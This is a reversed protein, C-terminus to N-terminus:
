APSRPSYAPLPESGEDSVSREGVGVGSPPANALFALLREGLTWPLVVVREEGGQETHPAPHSIVIRPQHAPTAPPSIPPPPLPQILPAPPPDIPCFQQGTSIDPATPPALVCPPAHLTDLDAKEDRQTPSAPSPCQPVQVARDSPATDSRSPSGNDARTSYDHDIVYIVQSPRSYVSATRSSGQIYPGDAEAGLLAHDHATCPLNKPYDLEDRYAQETSPIPSIPTVPLSPLIADARSQRRRRLLLLGAVVAILIGLIIPLVIEDSKLRHPSSSANSATASSAPQSSTGVLSTMRASTDTSALSTTSFWTGSLISSRLSPTPELSTNTGSGSGNLSQTNDSPSMPESVPATSTPSLTSSGPFDDKTNTASWSTTAVSPSSASSNSSSQSLSSFSPASTPQSRLSDAPTSPAGGTSVSAGFCRAQEADVLDSFEPQSCMSQLCSVNQVLIPSESCTCSRAMAASIDGTDCKDTAYHYSDTANRCRFDCPLDPTPMASRTTSCSIRWTAYTWPPSYGSVSLYRGSAHTAINDESKITTKFSCHFPVWYSFLGRQVLVCPEFRM